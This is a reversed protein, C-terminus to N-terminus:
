QDDVRDDGNNNQDSGSGVVIVSDDSVHMFVRNSGYSAPVYVGAVGGGVREGHGGGGDGHGGGDNDQDDDLWGGAWMGAGGFM